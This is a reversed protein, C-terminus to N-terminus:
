TTRLRRKTPMYLRKGKAILTRFFSAGKPISFQPVSSGDRERAIVHLEANATKTGLLVTTAAINKQNASKVQDGNSVTHNHERWVTEQAYRLPFSGAINHHIGIEARHSWTFFEEAMIICTGDLGYAEQHNIRKVEFREHLKDWSAAADARVVTQKAFRARIFSVVKSESNFVPPRIKWDRERVMVVVKLKGSQNRAFRRDRRHAKVNYLSIAAAGGPVHLPASRQWHM